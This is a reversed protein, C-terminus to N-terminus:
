GRQDPPLRPDSREAVDGATGRKVVVAFRAHRERVEEAPGDHGPVLFFRRPDARVAEYEGITLQVVENCGLQSCECVFGVLGDRTVRGTEIAENVRRFADENRAIREKGPSDMGGSAVARLKGRGPGRKSLAQLEAVEDDSFRDAYVGNVFILDLGRGV